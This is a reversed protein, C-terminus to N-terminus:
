GPHLVLRDLAPTATLDDWAFSEIRPSSLRVPQAFLLPVAPMFTTLVSQDLRAWCRLQESIVYQQTCAAIDRDINPVHQVDYGWRALARPSSGMRTLNDTGHSAFSEKLFNGANLFDAFWGDGFCM